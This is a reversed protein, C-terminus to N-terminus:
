QDSFPSNKIIRLTPANNCFTIVLNARGKELYLVLMFFYEFYDVLYSLNKKFIAM